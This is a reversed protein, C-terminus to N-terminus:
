PIEVPMLSVTLSESRAPHESLCVLILETQKHTLKWASELMATEKM